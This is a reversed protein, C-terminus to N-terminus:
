LGNILGDNLLDASDAILKRSYFRNHAYGAPDAGHYTFLWYNYAAGQLDRTSVVPALAAQTAYYTNNAQTTFTADTYFRANEPNYFIGRAKLQTDLAALATTFTAKFANLTAPTLLPQTVGDHCGVASCAGSNIATVEGTVENHTV